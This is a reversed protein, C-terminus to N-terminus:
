LNYRTAFFSRYKGEPFNNYQVNKNENHTFYNNNNKYRRMKPMVNHFNDNMITEKQKDVFKNFILPRNLFEKQAFSSLASQNNLHSNSEGNFPMYKNNNYINTNYKNQLNMINNDLLKNIETMEKNDNEFNFFNPFGFNNNPIITNDRYQNNYFYNNNINNSINKKQGIVSSKSRGSPRQNYFINDNNNDNNNFRMNPLNSNNNNNKMQPLFFTPSSINNNRNTYDNKEDSNIRYNYPMAISSNRFINNKLPQLNEKRSQSRYSNINNRNMSYNKLYPHNLLQNASPRKASDYQFIYELFDIAEDSIDFFVNKFNKKNHEPFKMNLNDMLRYGEPWDEYDPTGLINVIKNIQDFESQGPFLPKLNYLEAM